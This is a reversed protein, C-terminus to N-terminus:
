FWRSIVVKRDTYFQVADPGHAKVDGFMSQKAGGFPFFAMPAAVGINVGLMAPHATQKFQRAAKGSSTYLSGANAYPVSNMLAIADDLTNARMLNIVPGFIEQQAIAMGPKVKDFLSPGLWFGGQYGAAAKFTRGDVLLEAGEDVGKQIMHAIREKAQQSIVPGMTTKPELGDGVVVNKTLKILLERVREYAGGVTVVTSGALCRQGACGFGSDCANQVAQEMVATDDVLLFNKAGGLAQVRKGNKTATEYVLKAIKTSGVFSVGQIKEHTCFADVVDKGGHVLNVVGKPFGAKEMLEFIKKQSLPVQESPKLVFTNGSAVAYPLFWLPVMPPFNFPTIAAFVGMPQRWSATDIGTAVDELAAGMMLSPMGCAHEVNEIGRGIDNVAEALTKGHEMTCIRGIEDKSEDLLTKLKFLYRARQVPPTARWSPFAAQAAKVACDVDTTTSMPTKALVKGIAPNKVDVTADGSSDVWAGDVFNKLREGNMLFRRAFSTTTM